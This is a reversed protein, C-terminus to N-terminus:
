CQGTEWWFPHGFVSVHWTACLVFSIPTELPVSVLSLCMAGKAVM